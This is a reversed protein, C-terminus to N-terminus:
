FSRMRGCVVQSPFQAGSSEATDAEDSLQEVISDDFKAQDTAERRQEEAEIEVEPMTALDAAAKERLLTDLPGQTKLSGDEMAVEVHDGEVTADTVLTWDAARVADWDGLTGVGSIYPIQLSKWAKIHYAAYPDFYIPM